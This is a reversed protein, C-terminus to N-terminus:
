INAARLFKSIFPTQSKKLNIYGGYQFFYDGANWVRKFNDGVSIGGIKSCVRM